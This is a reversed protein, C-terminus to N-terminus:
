VVLEVAAVDHRYKCRSFIVIVDYAVRSPACSVPVAVALERAAIEDYPKGVAPIFETRAGFYHGLWGADLKRRGGSNEDCSAAATTEFSTARSICRFDVSQRPAKARSL